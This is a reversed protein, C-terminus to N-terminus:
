WKFEVESHWDGHWSYDKKSTDFGLQKGENLFKNAESDYYSILTFSKKNALIAKMYSKMINRHLEDQISEIKANLSETMSIKQKESEQIFRKLNEADKGIDDM